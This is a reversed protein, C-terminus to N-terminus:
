LKELETRVFLILERIYKESFDFRVGATKYLEPISVTYGLKLADMYQEIAKGPNEKYNKWVAIAGLQAMGYEIYYFPVEFLHLQKHWLNLLANEDESWDVLSSNFSLFIKRWEDRRQEATHLPNEYLWHQFADICSIWPLVEIINELQERKARRLEDKDTIFHHWHEMSILEMSMSALEAVESPVDKFGIFDLDRTLMSHIAHGGEHVMTIVDRLSGSANMFIFPVGSEYLPYNYGGPAKGIRSDLDTYNKTKLTNLVEGFFPHIQSFCAISKEMLESGVKFPKLDPKGSTDVELDWPKLKDLKMEKKRDTMLFDLVPVVSTMVSRHFNKCDEPTYDFRNLDTFKYDRYNSFGANSAIKVRLKILESFLDDLKDRDILRREVMKHFVSERLKRDPDKLYNSAQQLTLTKGNVDVTMAGAIEGYQQEKVTLEAEIPINEERFLKIENRVQRIYISYREDLQDIMPLSVFKKNIKDSYPAIKPNIEEVFYAYAENLSKNGTDCTMRIYLWGAHEEVIAELESFDKLWKLLEDFSTIERRTIDAYFPELSNWDSLNINAPLFTRTGAGAVVGSSITDSKM